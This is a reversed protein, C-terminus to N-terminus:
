DPQPRHRDYAGVAGPRRQRRPGRLRQASGRWRAADPIFPALLRMLARWQKIARRFDHVATENSREPDLIATRAKALVRAAIARVAPGIAANPQLAPKEAMEPEIPAHM